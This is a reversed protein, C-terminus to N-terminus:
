GSSSLAATLPEARPATLISESLSIATTKLMSMAPISSDRLPNSLRARHSSYRAYIVVNM